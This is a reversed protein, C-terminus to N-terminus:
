KRILKDRSSRPRVIPVVTREGAATAAPVRVGGKIVPGRASPPRADVKDAILDTNIAETANEAARKRRPTRVAPAQAPPAVPREKEERRVVVNKRGRVRREDLYMLNPIFESVIRSYSDLNQVAPNGALTLSVLNSCCSLFRVNTIDTIQNGELDLVRLRDMGMLHSVDKIANFALHLEEVRHSITFIGSLSTIGCHALSLFRLSALHCGIDRVSVLKSDVLCFKELRPFIDGLISLSAHRTNVTAELSKVWLFDKAGSYTYLAEGDMGEPQTDYDLVVRLLM